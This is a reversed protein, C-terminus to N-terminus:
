DQFFSSWYPEVEINEITAGLGYMGLLQQGFQIAAPGAYAAVEDPTDLLTTLEDAARVKEEYSARDDGQAGGFIDLAITERTSEGSQIRDNWYVMEAETPERNFMSNYFLWAYDRGVHNLDDFNQGTVRLRYEVSSTIAALADYNQGSQTAQEYYLLGEPDAPRDLLAVYIAQMNM